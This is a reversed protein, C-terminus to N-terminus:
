DELCWLEAHNLYFDFKSKFAHFSPINRPIALMKVCTKSIPRSEMEGMNESNVHINIGPIIISSGSCFRLIAELTQNDCEDIYRRLHEFAKEEYSDIAVPFNIYNLVKLTTPKSLDYISKLHNGTFVKFFNRLEKFTNFAACPKTILESKAARVVLNRINNKTPNARIAFKSLAEIVLGHDFKNKMLADTLISSDKRSIFRLFSKILIQESYEGILVSHLSVECFQVPFLAFNIFFHYLIKGVVEYEEEGFEPLVM